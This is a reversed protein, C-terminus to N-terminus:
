HSWNENERTKAEVSALSMVFCGEAIEVKEGMVLNDQSPWIHM